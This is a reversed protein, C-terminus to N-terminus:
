GSMDLPTGGTGDLWAAWLAEFRQRKTLNPNLRIAERTADHTDNTPRIYHRKTIASGPAHGLMEALQADDFGAAHFNSAAIMRLDKTRIKPSNAAQRAPILVDTRWDSAEWVGAGGRTKPPSFPFLVNKRGEAPQTRRNDRWDILAEMLPAPIWLDRVEGTKLPELVWVSRRMTRGKRARVAPVMQSVNDRKWERFIHLTNRQPDLMDPEASAIENFRAGSRALTLLMLRDQEDEVAMVLDMEQAWTPVVTRPSQQDDATSRARRRTTLGLGPNALLGGPREVDWSLASTLLRFGGRIMHSSVGAGPLTETKWAHLDAPTLDDVIKDGIGHEPHCVVCRRDSLYGRVTNPQLADPGVRNQEIFAATLAAVTRDSQDVRDDADDPTEFTVLGLRVKAMTDALAEEAESYTAWSQGPEISRQHPDVSRPFLAVFRGSRLKRITGAAQSRKPRALARRQSM